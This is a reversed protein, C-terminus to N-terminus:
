KPFFRPPIPFPNPFSPSDLPSLSLQKRILRKMKWPVDPHELPDWGLHPDAGANCLITVAWNNFCRAATYLPSASYKNLVNVNAGYEILMEVANQNKSAALHLPTRHIDDRSDVDAGGKVLARIVDESKTFLAAIHLPTCLECKDDFRFRADLNAGAVVLARIVDGSSNHQAAIHLPTYQNEYEVKVDAGNDFFVKVVDGSANQKAASLFLAQM